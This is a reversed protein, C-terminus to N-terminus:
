GCRQEAERNSTPVEAKALAQVSPRPQLPRWLGRSFPQQCYIQLSRTITSPSPRDEAETGTPPISSARGAAM